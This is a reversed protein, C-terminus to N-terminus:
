IIPIPEEIELVLLRKINTVIAEIVAQFYVKVKGRYRTRKPMKSFVGEFPMRISSIFRDKDRNKTKSNQKQIAMSHLGRARIAKDAQGVSYAKDAVVAGQKPAVHKLAKGDPINAATVAVKTILGSGMDVGVHRKFGLWINNKGKAGYRADPDSSYESINKNNMTPKDNGDTEQNEKDAIAKDRAKWSDVNAVISSADVFTYFERVLGEKKFSNIMTRFINSLQHSGIRKRFNGFYSHDPTKDLLGFNCFYKAAINENLYREMQRDSRDELFQLFLIKFGQEVAYGKRGEKSYLNRLPKTLDTWNFLKLIKRYDHDKSVIEDLEAIIMSMQRDGSKLGM